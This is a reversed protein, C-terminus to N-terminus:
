RPRSRPRTLSFWTRPTSSGSGSAFSRGSRPLKPRTRSAPASRRKKRPLGLRRLARCLVPRSVKQKARAEYREAYEDLTGDNREAVLTRLVAEGAADILPAPGGTHPKACRRGEERAQQRWLYVTSLGVQFRKAVTAPRVGSECARLVRERLDASYSGPV